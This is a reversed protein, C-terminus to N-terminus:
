RKPKNQPSKGVEINLMAAANEGTIKRFAETSLDAGEMEKLYRGPRILPFDSGFLIKEPGVISSAIKYIDPSYLYPSAATDFWTHTFIDKVEKKMLAYFFLGGGWHALIIKNLPYAKLLNYIQHLEIPQKGPYEHGVPENTHFLVPVNFRCCVAMLDSMAGIIGDSFGSDYIALEGVGALGESLCREAESPGQGSLPNLCCFGILREPNRQVAEMIYDNHRKYLDPDNWPFGFIVSRYINEEDMNAILDNWGAMKSHPNRYLLEFACEGRFFRERENRIFRPFIHTHIDIIM